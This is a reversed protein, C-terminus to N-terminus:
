QTIPKCVIFFQTCCQLQMSIVFFTVNVKEIFAQLLLLENKGVEKDFLHHYNIHFVIKFGWEMIEKASYSALGDNWFM